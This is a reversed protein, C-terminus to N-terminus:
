DSNVIHTGKIIDPMPLRFLRAGSSPFLDKLLELPINDKVEDLEPCNPLVIGGEYLNLVDQFTDFELPTKDVLADLAPVLAKAVAKIASGLFDSLKLHGFREDRPVYIDLSIGPLRSETNPDAIRIRGIIHLYIFGSVM